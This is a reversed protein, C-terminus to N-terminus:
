GSSFTALSASVRAMWLSGILARMMVRSSCNQHCYSNRRAFQTLQGVLLEGGPDALRLFLQEVKSELRRGALQGVVAPQADHPLLDCAHVGHKTFTLQTQCGSGNTLIRSITSSWFLVSSAALCAPSWCVGRVSFGRPCRLVRM